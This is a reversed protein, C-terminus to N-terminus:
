FSEGELGVKSINFLAELALTPSTEQLGSYFHPPAVHCVGHFLEPYFLSTRLVCCNTQTRWVSIFVYNSIKYKQNFIGWIGVPGKIRNWNWTFKRERERKKYSELYHHKVFMKSQVPWWQSVHALSSYYKLTTKHQCFVLSICAQGFINKKCTCVFYHQRKTFLTNRHSKNLKEWYMWKTVCLLQFGLFGNTAYWFAAPWILSLGASGWWPQCYIRLALENGGKQWWAQVCLCM